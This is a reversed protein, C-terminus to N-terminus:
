PATAGAWPHRKMAKKAFEYRQDAKPHPGNWEGTYYSLNGTEKLSSKALALACRAADERSSDIVKQNCVAYNPSSRDEVPHIQWLSHARGIRDTPGRDCTGWGSLRKGEATKIWAADNCALSDVYVAYRAGEFYGLAALLVAEKPDSTVTAISEAVDRYPVSPVAKLTHPWDNMVTLLYDAVAPDFAPELPAVAAPAPAGVSVLTPDLEVPPAPAQAHVLPSEIALTALCVTLSLLLITKLM